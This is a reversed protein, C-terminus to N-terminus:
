KRGQKRLKRLMFIKDIYAAEEKMEEVHKKRRKQNEADYKKYDKCDAHCTATRKKCKYCPPTLKM